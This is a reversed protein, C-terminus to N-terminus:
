VTDKTVGLVNRSFAVCVGLALKSTLVLTGTISLAVTESMSNGVTSGVVVVTKRDM